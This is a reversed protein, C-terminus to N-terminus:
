LFVCVDLSQFNCKHEKFFVHKQEYLGGLERDVAGAASINGPWFSKGAVLTMTLFGQVSNHRVLSGTPPM